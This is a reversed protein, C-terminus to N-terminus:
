KVLYRLAAQKVKRMFEAAQEQKAATAGEINQDLLDILPRDIENAAACGPASAPAQEPRGHRVPASLRGGQGAACRGPLAAPRPAAAAPGQKSAHSDRASCGDLSRFRCLLCVKPGPREKVSVLLAAANRLWCTQWGWRSADAQRPRLCRAVSAPRAGGGRKGAMELLVAKKDKAELLKKLRVQPAALTQAAKEVADVAEQVARCAGLSGRLPPIPAARAARCRHPPGSALM